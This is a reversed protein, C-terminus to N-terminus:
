LRTLYQQHSWILRHYERILNTFLSMICFYTYRLIVFRLNKVPNVGKIEHASQQSSISSVSNNVTIAKAGENGNDRRSLLDM